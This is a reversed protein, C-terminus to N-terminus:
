RQTQSEATVQHANAGDDDLLGLGDRSNTQLHKGAGRQMSQREAYTPNLNTENYNSLGACYLCM